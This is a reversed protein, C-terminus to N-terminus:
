TAEEAKGTIEPLAGQWIDKEKFIVREYQDSHDGTVGDIFRAYLKTEIFFAKGLIHPCDTWSCILHGAFKIGGEVGGKADYTYGLASVKGQVYIELKSSGDIQVPETPASGAITKSLSAEGSIAGAAKLVVEFLKADGFWDLLSPISFDVGFSIELKYSLVKVGFRIDYYRDVWCYSESKWKDTAKTGWEGSIEGELLSLEFSASWGIKPVWHQIDNWAKSIRQHLNILDNIFKTFDVEHGNRKLSVTPSLETPELAFVLKQGEDTSDSQTVSAGKSTLGPVGSRETYKEDEALYAQGGKTGSTESLRAYGAGDRGGVVQETTSDGKKQNVSTTSSQESTTRGWTETSSSSKTERTGKLDKSGGKEGKWKKFAPVKCSLTFVDNRYVRVLGNLTTRPKGSTRVGCSEAVVELEKVDNAFFWFPSLWKAPGGGKDGPGSLALIEVPAPSSLHWTQPGEEPKAEGLPTLTVLSHTKTPCNGEYKADIQLKVVKELPKPSETPFDGVVELVVDYKQSLEKVRAPADAGAALPPRRATPIKALVHRKSTSDTLTLRDVDCPKTRNTQYPCSQTASDCKRDPSFSQQADQDAVALSQQAQNAQAADGGAPKGDFIRGLAAFLGM